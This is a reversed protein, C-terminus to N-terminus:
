LKKAELHFVGQTVVVSDPVGSHWLPATSYNRFFVSFRGEVQHKLTDYKLVEVYSLYAKVPDPKFNGIGLDVESFAYITQPIFNYRNAITSEEFSYKGPRTPIDSIRFTETLLNSWTFETSIILSSDSQLRWCDFQGPWNKGNRKFFGRGLEIVPKPTDVPVITTDVPDPPLPAVPNDPKSCAYLLLLSISICWLCIKRAQANGSVEAMLATFFQRNM